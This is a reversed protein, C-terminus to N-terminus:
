HRKLINYILNINNARDTWQVDKAIDSRNDYEDPYNVFAM